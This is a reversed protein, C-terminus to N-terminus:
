YEKKYEDRVRRINELSTNVNLNERKEPAYHGQMKNLEAIAKIATDSLVLKKGSGDDDQLHQNLSRDIIEQLKQVKWEFTVETKKQVESRTKELLEQIQPKKLLQHAYRDPHKCKFGAQILSQKANSTQIFLKVFNQQQLTLKKAM